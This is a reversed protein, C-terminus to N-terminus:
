PSQTLLNSSLSFAVLKAVLERFSPSQDANADVFVGYDFTNGLTRSSQQSSDEQRIVPREEIQGLSDAPDITDLNDEIESDTWPDINLLDGLELRGPDLDSLPSEECSGQEALERPLVFPSAGGRLARQQNVKGYEYVTVENQANKAPQEALTDTPECASQTSPLRHSQKPQVNERDQRKRQEIREFHEKVDRNSLSISTPVRRLM